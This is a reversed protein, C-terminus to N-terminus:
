GRFTVAKGGDYIVHGLLYSLEAGETGVVSAGVSLGYNELRSRQGSEIEAGTDRDRDSETAEAMRITYFFGRLIEGVDWPVTV